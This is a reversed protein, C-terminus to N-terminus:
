RGLLSREFRPVLLMGSTSFLVFSRKATAVFCSVAVKQYLLMHVILEVDLETHKSRMKLRPVFDM